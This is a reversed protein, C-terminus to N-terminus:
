KCIQPKSNLLHELLKQRLVSHSFFSVIFLNLLIRLISFLLSWTNTGKSEIIPLTLFHVVYSVQIKAVSVVDSNINICMKNHKLYPHNM